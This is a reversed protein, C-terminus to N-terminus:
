GMTILLYLAVGAMLSLGLGTLFGLLYVGKGRGVEPPVPLPMLPARQALTFQAPDDLLNPPASDYGPRRPQEAMGPENQGLLRNLNDLADATLSAEAAIKAAADFMPQAAAEAERFSATARPEYRDYRGSELEEAPTVVSEIPEPSQQPAAPDPYQLARAPEFPEHFLPTAPIEPFPPPVPPGLDGAADQPEPYAPAASMDPFPLSDLGEVPAAADAPLADSAISDDPPAEVEASAAVEDESAAQPPEADSEVDRRLAGQPLPGGLMSMDLGAVEPPPLGDDDPPGGEAPPDAADLSDFISSVAMPRLAAISAQGDAAPGSDVPDLQSAPLDEDPADVPGPQNGDQSTPEAAFSDIISDLSEPVQAFPSSAPNSFHPEPAPDRQEPGETPEAMEAPEVAEAVKAAETAEAADAPPLGNLPEPPPPDPPGQTDAPAPPAGALADLLSGDGFMDRRTTAVAEADRLRLGARRPQNGNGDDGDTPFQADPM